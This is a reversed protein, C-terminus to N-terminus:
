ATPRVQAWCGSPGTPTAACRWSSRCCLGARYRSTRWSGRRARARVQLVVGYCERPSVSASTVDPRAPTTHCSLRTADATAIATSTCSTGHRCLMATRPALRIRVQPTRMLPTPHQQAGDAGGGACRQLGGSCWTQVRAAASASRRRLRSCAPLGPLPKRLSNALLPTRIEVHCDRRSCRRMLEGLVALAILVAAVTGVVIGAVAGSPISGGGGGATSDPIRCLRGSPLMMCMYHHWSDCQYSCLLM